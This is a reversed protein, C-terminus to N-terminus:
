SPPPHDDHHFHIINLQRQPAVGAQITLKYPSTAVVDGEEGTLDETM